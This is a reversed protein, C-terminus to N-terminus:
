YNRKGPIKSAILKNLHLLCLQHVVNDGFIEDFIRPYGPALDTVIVIRRDPDLYEALFAKVTESDKNDYLEDAIPCGTIGQGAPLPM